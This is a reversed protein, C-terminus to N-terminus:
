QCKEYLKNFLKEFILYYEGASRVVYVGHKLEVVGSKTSLSCIGTALNCHMLDIDEGLFEIFEDINETKLYQIAEVEVMPIDVKSKYKPVLNVGENATVSDIKARVIEDTM